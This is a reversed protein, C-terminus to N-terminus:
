CFDKQKFKRCFNMFEDLYALEFKTTSRRQNELINRSAKANGRNCYIVHDGANHEKPLGRASSEPLTYVILLEMLLLTLAVLAITRRHLCRSIIHLITAGMCLSANKIYLFIGKYKPAMYEKIIVTELTVTAGLVLGRLFRGTMLTTMDKAFYIILWGVISSIIVQATALRRGCSTMLVISM